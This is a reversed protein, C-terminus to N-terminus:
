LVTATDSMGVTRAMRTVNGICSLNISRRIGGVRGGRGLRDLLLPFPKPSPSDFSTHYLLSLDLRSHISHWPLHTHTGRESQKKTRRTIKQKRLKHAVHHVLHRIDSESSRGCAGRYCDRVARERGKTRRASHSFSPKRAQVARKVVVKNNTYLTSITRYVAFGFSMDLEISLSSRNYVIM